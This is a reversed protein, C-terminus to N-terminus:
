PDLILTECDTLADGPDYRVTDNDAVGPGDEGCDVEDDGVGDNVEVRDNGEGASITDSGGGRNSFIRNADANGVITDDTSRGQIIVNNVANGSWNVRGGGNANIVEPASPSSVLNVTLAQTLEQGSRAAAFLLANASSSTASDIITDDGWSDSRYEYVDHGSGGDLTDNGADGDLHDTRPGGSLFDNGNRAFFDDGGDSGYLRNRAGNGHVFDAGGGGRFNEIVVTGPFGVQSGSGSAFTRAQLEVRTDGAVASFDITDAGGTEGGEPIRDSGAGDDVVYTDNGEGGSVIDAGREGSLRDNGGIADITDNGGAGRMRDTTNTGTMTDNQATGVCLDGARNPCSIQAALAVGAFSVLLLGLAMSTLLLITRSM